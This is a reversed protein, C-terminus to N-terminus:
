QFSEAMYRLLCLDTFAERIRALTPIKLANEKKWCDHAIKIKLRIKRNSKQIKNENQM